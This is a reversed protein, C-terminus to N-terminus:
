FAPSQAELFSQLILAAATADIEGRTQRRGRRQRKSKLIEIASVSSYREDWFEIPLELAEALEATYRRTWRAQPGETGDLSLPLGVVIREVAFEAVLKAIALIDAQRSARVITTL